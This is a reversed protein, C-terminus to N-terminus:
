SRPGSHDLPVDTATPTVPVTFPAYTVAPPGSDGPAADPQGGDGPPGADGPGADTGPGTDPLEALWPMVRREDRAYGGTLDLAEMRLLLPQGLVEEVRENVIILPTVRGLLYDGDAPDAVYTPHHPCEFPDVQTEDGLLASFRTDIRGDDAAVLGRVRPQVLIHFGGQPGRVIEVEQDPALPQFTDGDDDGDGDGLTAEGLQAYPPSSPWCEVAPAGPPQDNGSCAAVIGALLSAPTTRVLACRSRM